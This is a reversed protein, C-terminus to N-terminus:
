KQFISNALNCLFHQRKSCDWYNFFISSKNEAPFSQAVVFPLSIISKNFYRNLCMLRLSQLQGSLPCLLANHLFAGSYVRILHRSDQAPRHIQSPPPCRHSSSVILSLGGKFRFSVYYSTQFCTTVSHYPHHPLNSPLLTQCYNSIIINQSLVM